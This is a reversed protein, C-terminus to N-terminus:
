AEYCSGVRQCNLLRYIAPACCVIRLATLLLIIAPKHLPRVCNPQDFLLVLKQLVGDLESDHASSSVTFEMEAQESEITVVFTAVIM